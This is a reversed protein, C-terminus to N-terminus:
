WNTSYEVSYPAYGDYPQYCVNVWEFGDWRWCSGYYSATAALTASIRCVSLGLGLRQALGLWRWSAPSAFAGASLRAVSVSVAKALGPAVSVPASRPRASDLVVSAAALPRAASAVAAASPRVVSAVGALAWEWAAVAASAVSWRWDGGGGGGMGEGGGRGGRQAAAEDLALSAFLLASASLVCLKKM